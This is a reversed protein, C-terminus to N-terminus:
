RIKAELLDQLHILGIPRQSNVSQSDQVFLCQIKFKEMLFLAKEALENQDLCRPSKSMLDEATLTGLVQALTDPDFNTNLKRRVDGDTIVGILDKDASVVGCIGRVDAQTMLALIENMPAYPSILPLDNITMIDKVRTLLRRGLQGGPHFEAFDETKFGKAELACMSLADCFALTATSSSTPALGLPCAEQNVKIELTVDGACGLRSEKNGTISILKVGQRKVFQLLNKLEGSEGGYSIALVIDQKSIVGLDGHSSEAAHLFVAPTGTSSMTSAMKRAIIGSKGIGSIILKGQCELILNLAKLFEDGISSKLDLISQAEIDLVEKAKNLIEIM